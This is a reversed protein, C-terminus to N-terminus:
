SRFEVLSQPLRAPPLAFPNNFVSFEYAVADQRITAAFIALGGLREYAASTFYGTESGYSSHDAYLAIDLMPKSDALSVFFDDAMVLLTPQGAPFKSYANSICARVQKWTAFPGGEGDEYKPLKARGALRDAHALESEWGRSKVEVFVTLNEASGVSYEGVKGANGPPEWAVVPFGARHLHLAVRLENIAEDRQNNRHTHLRPIFNALQGHSDAFALLQELEDAWPQRAPYADTWRPPSIIRTSIPGLQVSPKVMCNGKEVSFLPLILGNM